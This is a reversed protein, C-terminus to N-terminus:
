KKLYICVRDMFAAAKEYKSISQELLKMREAEPYDKYSPIDRDVGWLASMAERILHAKKQFEKSHYYQYHRLFIAQAGSITLPKQDDKKQNVKKQIKM